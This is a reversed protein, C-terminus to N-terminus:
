FVGPGYYSLDWGLAVKMLLLFFVLFCIFLSVVGPFLMGTLPISSCSSWILHAGDEQLFAPLYAENILCLVLAMCIQSSFRLILSLKPKLSRNPKVKGRKNEAARLSDRKGATSQPFLCSLWLLATSKPTVPNRGQFLIIVVTLNIEM